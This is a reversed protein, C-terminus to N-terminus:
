GGIWADKDHSVELFSAIVIVIVTGVRLACDGDLICDMTVMVVGSPSKPMEQPRIPFFHMNGVARIFDLSQLPAQTNAIRISVAKINNDM